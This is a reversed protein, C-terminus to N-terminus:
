AAHESALETVVDILNGVTKCREIDEDSMEIGFSEEIAMMIEVLDLSDCGLDNVIHAERTFKGVDKDHIVDCLIGLVRKEIEETQM